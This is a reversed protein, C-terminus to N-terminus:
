SLDGATDEARDELGVRGLADSVAEAVAARDGGLRRRAALAVNEFLSLKSFVSTIQFSYAMGLAVRRHAPLGTIDQVQFWIRGSTPYLRGILMNVFTTKGAGNPGILARIEGTPLEFDVSEVAKLGSFHRTLGQTHLIATM